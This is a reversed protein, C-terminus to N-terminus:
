RPPRGILDACLEDTVEALTDVVVDAASLDYGVFNGARVGVVRAGAARGALIGPTADEIVICRQAQARVGLRDMAMLYPEPDPKGRTYDEAAVIARFFQTIGIGAIADRVEVRSAGSAIALPARAALRKVTEVAAPLAQHGTRALLADKEQVASAILTEMGVQISTTASIRAYIENWSHGVIFLRLEDSLEVGLRRCALVVSEVNDRESDVLTGDMDFLFAAPADPVSKDPAASM